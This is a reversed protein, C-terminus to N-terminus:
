KEKSNDTEKDKLQRDKYTHSKGVFASDRKRFRIM